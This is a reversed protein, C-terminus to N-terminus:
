RVRLVGVPRGEAVGSGKAPGVERRALWARAAALVVGGTVAGAVLGNLLRWLTIAVPTHVHAFSNVVSIAAVTSAAWVGAFLWPWRGALDLRWLLLGLALAPYGVVFEKTRPRVELAAELWGRLWREPTWVPALENGTRALYYGAAALVVVMFVLDRWRAPAGAAQEVLGPKGLAWAALALGGLVPLGHALKVGRFVELRVMFQPDSLLGSVVLGGAVAVGVFGVAGVAVGRLVRGFREAPAAGGPGRAVLGLAVGAAALPAVVAVALGLAARVLVSYPHQWGRLQAGGALAAVVVSAAVAARWAVGDWHRLESLGRARTWGLGGALALGALAAAMAACALPGPAAKGAAVQAMGTRYGWRALGQRIEQVMQRTEELTKLPRLYLVKVGREVAARVYRQAAAQPGLELLQEPRASHVVVAPIGFRRVLARVPQTKGFEVLGVAAGLGRLLEAAEEPPPLEDGWFISVRSVPVEAPRAYGVTGLEWQQPSAGEAPQPLRPGPGYRLLVAVGAQRAAEWGERPFGVRYQAAGSLRSPIAVPEEGAVFLWSTDTGGAGAPAAWHLGTARSLLELQSASLLLGEGHTVLDSATWETLAVTTVGDGALLSLAQQPQCDWQDCARVLAEWDMVVEVPGGRPGEVGARRVLAGAAAVVGVLCLAVAVQLARRGEGGAVGSARM